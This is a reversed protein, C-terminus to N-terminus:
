ISNRKLFIRRLVFYIVVCILVFIFLIATFKIMPDDFQKVTKEYFNSTDLVININKKNYNDRTIIWTYVNEYASDANNSLVNYRSKINVNIKNLTKYEDFLKFGSVRININSDNQVIDKNICSKWVLNSKSFGLISDFKSKFSLGIKDDDSLDDVEYYSVNDFRVFDEPVYSDDYHYPIEKELFYDNFEMMTMGSTLYNWNYSNTEVITANEKFEGDINLTYNIDCGTLFLAVILVLFAKKLFDGRGLMLLIAM